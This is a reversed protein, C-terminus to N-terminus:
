AEVPTVDFNRDYLEAVRALEGADLPEREAAAAFERLQEPGEIDPLVTTVARDALLWLIAAQALSRGGAELFRLREVKELGELLWARPRHRRPDDEALVTDRTSRGELLGAAHPLRVMVGIGQQDALEVLERGPDQELVNHIVQLADLRRNRLAWV